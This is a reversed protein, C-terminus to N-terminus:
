FFELFEGDNPDYDVSVKLKIVGSLLDKKVGEIVENKLEDTVDIPNGDEGFMDSLDDDVSFKFDNLDVTNNGKVNRNLNVRKIVVLLEGMPEQDDIDDEFVEVFISYETILGSISTSNLLRRM